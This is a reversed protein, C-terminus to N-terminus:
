VWSVHTKFYNIFSRLQSISNQVETGIFDILVQKNLFRSIKFKGTM